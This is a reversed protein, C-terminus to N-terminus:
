RSRGNKRADPGESGEGPGTRGAEQVGERALEPLLLAIEDLVENSDDTGGEALAATQPDGLTRASSALVLYAAAAASVLAYIDCLDGTPEPSASAPEMWRPIRGLSAALTRRLSPARGHLRALAQELASQHAYVRPELRQLLEKLDRRERVADMSLESQIRAHLRTELALLDGMEGVLEARAAATLPSADM